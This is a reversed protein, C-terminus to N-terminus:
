KKQELMTGIINETIVFLQINIDAHSRLNGKKSQPLLSLFPEEDLIQYHPSSWELEAVEPVSTELHRRIQKVGIICGAPKCSPRCLTLTFHHPFIM